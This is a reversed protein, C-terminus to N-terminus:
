GEDEKKNGGRIRDERTINKETRSEAKKLEKKNLIDIRATKM